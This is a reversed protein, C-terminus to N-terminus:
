AKPGFLTFKSKKKTSDEVGSISRSMQKIARSIPSDELTLPTATNQTRRTTEYDNPIKWTAPRTLAKTVHEEDMGMSRPTFRNLVIELKPSDGKFFETVLRNANRLDPINVQTVLYITSSKEFLATHTLDLRTGADVVIYEFEQRAIALLKDLAEPATPAQMFKGPAGLVMLGSSHKILLKSLFNSDLRAHNQLANISSYDSSIGLNLAADGLPLDLDILLTKQKSEHALSVAFNCALTTVGSGGKAGLFVLVKGKAKKAPANSRRRVSARVLAEAMTPPAIPESLFERAGARMCRVLMDSDSRSSIVMVTTTNLVCIAEVLDLAAEPDGDLDVMVVDYGPKLLQALDDLRPYVFIEQIAGAQSGAMASILTKRRFDDPSILAISLASSDFSTPEQIAPSIM